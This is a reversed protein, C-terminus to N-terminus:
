WEDKDRGAAGRQPPDAFVRERGSALTQDCHSLRTISKPVEAKSNPSM